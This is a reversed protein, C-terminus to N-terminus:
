KRTLPLYIHYTLARITNRYVGGNVVNGASVASARAAQAAGSLAGGGTAVYLVVRGQATATALAGIKTYGLSGVARDWSLGSNLSRVVGRWGYQYITPPTTAEVLLRDMGFDQTAQLTWSIGGNSSIYFQEHSAAYLIQSNFPDVALGTIQKGPLGSPNWTAGSDVSKWVGTGLNDCCRGTGAYLTTPANPDAVLMAVTSIVQGVDVYTWDAGYNTSTYFGGGASTNSTSTMINFDVGMILHGPQGTSLMSQMAVGNTCCAAYQPPPTLVIWDWTQGDNATIDVGNTTGVYLRQPDFPDVFPAQPWQNNTPITLWSGGGNNTKFVGLGPVTAYVSATNAPNIALGNPYIGALGQNSEAWSAGTDITKYIGLGNYGLYFIASNNPDAALANVSNSSGGFSSWTDGGNISKWSGEIAGIWITGSVTPNFTISTANNQNGTGPLIQTWSGVTYKWLYGYHGNSDAGTAWVERGGFPNVGLNSIFQDPQGIFGWSDGGNSSRFVNGNRTGAYMIQADVPDFALATVQTDTLGVTRTLWNDGRDTSEFVGCDPACNATMYVIQPNAPHAYPNIDGNIGPPMSLAAWNDGGDTSRYLGTGWKAAYIVAPAPVSLDISHFQNGVDAFLMTWNLGGDLSRFMGIGSASNPAQVSAYITTPTIPNVLLTTVAGGYPGDSTWVNLGQTVTFARGLSASLGDPNTITVTYLGVNMGWPVTATLTTSDIWGVNPLMVSGVSVQPLTMIQTGSLEVTFESGTIVITTDLDNPASDPDISTVLPTGAQAALVRGTNDGHMSSFLLLMGVMSVLIIGAISFSRTRM